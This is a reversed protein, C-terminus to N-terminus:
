LRSIFSEVNEFEDRARPALSDIATWDEAGGAKELAACIDALSNAGISRASSKLKHAAGKVEAAARKEWAIVIEAIISRSPDVFTRLIERFTVEDDGFVDKIARENVPSPGDDIAPNASQPAVGDPEKKRAGRAAKAKASKGREAEEPKSASRPMWKQLASILAPMAIPKSVYDDMGVRLCREAEGQLANASVAIIPIHHGTDQELARIRSTFEYGDMVPMHCDTLILAFRGTRYANLGEEGNNVIECTHGLLNLQRRIVDQNTPNDEAL